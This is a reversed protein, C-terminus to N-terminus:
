CHGVCDIHGVTICPVHHSPQMYCLWIYLPEETIQNATNEIAYVFNLIIM